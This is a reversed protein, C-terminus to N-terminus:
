FFVTKNEIIYKYVDELKLGQDVYFYINLVPCWPIYQANINRAEEYKQLEHFKRVFDGSINIGHYRYKREKFHVLATFDKVNQGKINFAHYMSDFSNNSIAFGEYYLYESRKLTIKQSNWFCSNMKLDVGIDDLEEQTATNGEPFYEIREKVWAKFSDEYDPRIYILRSLANFIRNLDNEQTENM